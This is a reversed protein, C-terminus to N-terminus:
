VTTKKETMKDIVEEAKEILGDALKKASDTIKKRTEAHKDSSLLMGIAVGAAAGALLVYLLNTGKGM